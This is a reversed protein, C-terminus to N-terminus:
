TRAYFGTYGYEGLVKTRNKKFYPDDKAGKASAFALWIGLALAIAAGIRRRTTGLALVPVTCTSALFALCFAATPAPILLAATLLLWAMWFGGSVVAEKFSGREM